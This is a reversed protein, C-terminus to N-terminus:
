FFEYAVETVYLTNNWCDRNKHMLVYIDFDGRIDEQECSFMYNWDSLYEVDECGLELHIDEDFIETLKKELTEKNFRHHVLNELEIKIRQRKEKPTM